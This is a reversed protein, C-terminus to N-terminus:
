IIMKSFLKYQVLMDAVGVAITTKGSGSKSNCFIIDNDKNWIANAFEEQEKDLELGHFLKGDIREPPNDYITTATTTRKKAM